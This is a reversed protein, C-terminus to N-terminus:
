PHRGYVVYVPFVCRGQQTEARAAQATSLYDAETAMGLAVVPARMADIAAFYDAEVLTGVRGGYAGLPLDVHRVTVDVLGAAQLWPGIRTALHIDLNRRALVAAVWEDVQKLAPGGGESTGAEVVEVWGGPRTVRALEGIAHPWVDLPIAGIMYRQHVYDFRGDDVPLRELVNGTVFAYNDPRVDAPTADQESLPATVDVGVVSAQPFLQAMEFAWRGTGCGVDLISQPHSGIPAAFNGRLAYRMMYHQFDLRNVEGMDNPLVYPVGRLFRRGGVTRHAVDTAVAAGDRHPQEANRRRWFWPM